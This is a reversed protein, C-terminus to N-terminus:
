PAYKMVMVSTLPDQDQADDFRTVALELDGLHKLMIRIDSRSLEKLLKQCHVAWRTARERDTTQSFEWLMMFLVRWETPSKAARRGKQAALAFLAHASTSGLFDHVAQQEKEMSSPPNGQGIHLGQNILVNNLTVQLQLLHAKLDQEAKFDASQSVLSLILALAGLILAVAGLLTGSVQAATNLEDPLNRYFIFALAAPTAGLLVLM